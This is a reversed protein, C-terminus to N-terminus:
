NRLIRALDEKEEDNMSAFTEKMEEECEEVTPLLQRNGIEEKIRSLEEAIPSIDKHNSSIMLSYIKSYTNSLKILIDKIETLDIHRRKSALLVGELLDTYDFFVDLIYDPLHTLNQDYKSIIDSISDYFNSCSFQSGSYQTILNNLGESLKNHYNFFPSMPYMVGGIPNEETSTQPQKGFYTRTQGKKLGKDIVHHRVKTTEVNGFKSSPVRGITSGSGVQSWKPSQDIFIYSM